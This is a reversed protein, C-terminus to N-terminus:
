TASERPEVSAAGAAPALRKAMYISTPAVPYTGFRECRGYGAREYSKVAWPSKNGTELKVEDYGIARAAEELARIIEQGLRKGRAAPLLFVSKLECYGDHKQLAGCGIPAGDERAIFLMLDDSAHADAPVAFREEPAYLAFNEEDRAALLARADACDAPEAAITLTM